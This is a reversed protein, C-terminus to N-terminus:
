NRLRTTKPHHHFRHSLNCDVHFNVDTAATAIDIHDKAQLKSKKKKKKKKKQQRKTLYPLIIRMLSKPIPVVDIVCFQAM